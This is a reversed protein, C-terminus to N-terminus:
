KSCKFWNGGLYRDYMEKHGCACVREETQYSNESLKRYTFQHFFHNNFLKNLLNLM